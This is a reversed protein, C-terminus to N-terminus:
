CCQVGETIHTNTTKQYQFNIGLLVGCFRSVGIGQFYFFLNSDHKCTEGWVATPAWIDWCGPHVEFLVVTFGFRSSPFRRKSLALFVLSVSTQLTRQLALFSGWSWFQELFFFFFRSRVSLGNLSLSHNGTSSHFATKELVHGVLTFCVVVPTMCEVLLVTSCEYPYPWPLQILDTSSDDDYSTSYRSHLPTSFGGWANHSNSLGKHKIKASSTQTWQSLFSSGGWRIVVTQGGFFLM